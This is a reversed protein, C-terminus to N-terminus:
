ETKENHKLFNQKRFAKINEINMMGTLPNGFDTLPDEVKCMNILNMCEERGCAKVNGNEDFVKNYQEIMAQLKEM